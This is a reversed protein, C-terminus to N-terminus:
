PKQGATLPGCDVLLLLSAGTKVPETVASDATQAVDLDSLHLGGWVLPPTLQRRLWNPLPHIQGLPCTGIATVDDVTIMMEQGGAGQSVLLYPRLTTVLGMKWPSLMGLAGALDYVPLWRDEYLAESVVRRSAPSTAPRVSVSQQRLLARVQSVLLGFSYRQNGEQLRVVVLEITRDTPATAAPVPATAIM